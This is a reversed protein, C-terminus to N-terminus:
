SVEDNISEEDREINCLVKKILQYDEYFVIIIDGEKANRIAAGLAEGENLIIRYNDKPKGGLRVGQELLQAVEYNKRGRKDIDEKIYIFDLGEAAIKGLEIISKNTRDGPVGIVGVLRKGDLKKLSKITAKYAEINHGYDVVVKFNNVKYVNFRGPNQDANPLFSYIGALIENTNINLGICASIAAMTNEVNYILKGGLSIPIESIQIMKHETNGDFYCINGDSCFVCKKNESIQKKIISNEGTLSFFIINAKVRDILQMVNQDTANLIAYGNDKIAEVVLSKVSVLDEITNIGDLGLHDESINTIVGVDAKDYGLGRRLIGGRATELVAADVSKDLLVMKASEPGTTDGKVLMENNIFVGSTTTMGVNMGRMSLIHAILRTVTTKGNTGTISVLPIAKPADKFIYDIIDAAVNRPKGCEPYMHMRIGPAANVEIVAGGQTRISKSIDETCVDIGAIDLGVARAANIAIEINETHIIDTCDKAVGGTSLNANFRVTVSEDTQPIYALSLGKKRLYNIMIDDIAIKTMPKEHDYGRRPNENEIEILDMITHVGDGTVFPPIRHTVAAIKGNIVLIRYDNGSIYREVLVKPNFRLAENYAEIAEAENTIGVTVGKGKCGNIPKIVVPFGISRCLKIVGVINEAVDGQTIPVNSSKLVERTLEKDCSIDVGVCSTNSSLTAEIRHQHKGYGLQLISDKGIKIVPIDRKKAEDFIAKTSPGMRKQAIIKDIRELESKMDFNSGKIFANICKLGAEVCLLAAEDNEYQFIVHYMSDKIIRARGHRIDIFGLSNQMEILMHEYVHPLYTGEDLRDKFGGVYDLSCRHMALGPLAKLLKENFGTLDKTPVDALEEVDVTLRICLKHSYINRGTYIRKDVINM